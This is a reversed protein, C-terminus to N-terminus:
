YRQDTQRRGAGTTSCRAAACAPWTLRVKVHNSRGVRRDAVNWKWSRRRSRCVVESGGGAGAEGLEICRM